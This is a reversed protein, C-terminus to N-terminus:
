IDSRPCGSRSVQGWPESSSGKGLSPHWPGSGPASAPAGPHGQHGLGERGPGVALEVQEATLVPGPCGGWQRPTRQLWTHTEWNEGTFMWM